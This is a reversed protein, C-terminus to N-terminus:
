APAMRVSDQVSKVETHVGAHSAGNLRQDSMIDNFGDSHPTGDIMAEVLERKRPDAVLGAISEEPTINTDGNMTRELQNANMAKSREKPDLKTMLKQCWVSALTTYGGLLVGTTGLGAAMAHLEQAALPNQANHEMVGATVACVSLVGMTTLGIQPGYDAFFRATEKMNNKLRDYWNGNENM